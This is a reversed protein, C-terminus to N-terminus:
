TDTADDSPAADLGVAEALATDSAILFELVSKVDSFATEPTLDATIPRSVFRLTNAKDHHVSGPLAVSRQSRWQAWALDDIRQYRAAPVLSVQWAFADSDEDFEVGFRVEAVVTFLTGKKFRLSARAIAYQSSLYGGSKTETEIERPIDVRVRASTWPESRVRRVGGLIGTVFARTEATFVERAKEMDSARQGILMSVESIISM